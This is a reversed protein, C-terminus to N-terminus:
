RRSECGSGEAQATGSMGVRAGQQGHNSRRWVSSTKGPTLCLRHGRLMQGMEGEHTLNEHPTGCVAWENRLLGLDSECGRGDGSVTEEHDGTTGM